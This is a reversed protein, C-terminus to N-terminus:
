AEPLLAALRPVDINAGTLLVAARRAEIGALGAAAAIAAAGAGEAVLHDEALLTRVAERVARESVVVVRDVLDRIVPWTITEPDV